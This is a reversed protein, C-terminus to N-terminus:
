PTSRWSLFHLAAGRLPADEHRAVNVPLSSLLSRFRGKDVFGRMFRNRLAPLARAVSGGLFVGETAVYRLAMNGTEAGLLADAM